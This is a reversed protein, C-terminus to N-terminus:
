SQPDTPPTRKSRYEDSNMLAMRAGWLDESLSQNGVLAAALHLADMAQTTVMVVFAKCRDREEQSDHGHMMFGGRGGHFLQMANDYGGHVNKDLRGSIYKSLKRALGVDNLGALQERRDHAMAIHKRSLYARKSEPNFPAFFDALFKEQEGIVTADNSNEAVFVIEDSFDRVMRAIAGVEITYGGDALCMAANLGSVIRAAKVVVLVRKSREKHRWVFGKKTVDDKEPRPLAAVLMNVSQAMM